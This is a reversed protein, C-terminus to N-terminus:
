FLGKRADLCELPQQGNTGVTLLDAIILIVPLLNFPVDAVMGFGLEAVPNARFAVRSKDLGFEITQV